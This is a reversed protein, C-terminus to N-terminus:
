DLINRFKWFSKMYINFSILQIGSIFVHQDVKFKNKYNDTM